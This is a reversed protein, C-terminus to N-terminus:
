SLNEALIIIGEGYRLAFEDTGDRRMPRRNRSNRSVCRNPWASLLYNANVRRSPATCFRPARGARRSERERTPVAAIISYIPM